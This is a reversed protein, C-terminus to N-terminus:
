NVTLVPLTAVQTIGDAQPSSLLRSATPNVWSVQTHEALLSGSGSTVVVFFATLLSTLQHQTLLRSAALQAHM